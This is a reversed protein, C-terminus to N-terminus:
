YICHRMKCLLISLIQALKGTAQLIQHVTHKTVSALHSPRFVCDWALVYSIM